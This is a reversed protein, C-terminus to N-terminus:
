ESRDVVPQATPATSSPELPSLSMSDILGLAALLNVRSQNYSTVSNAYRLRAENLTDEAQLVDVTLATGAGFNEQALHLAEEAAEVQQKAMPILQANTASDQASRVVQARVDELHREAELMAQQETAKASHVQGFLAASL